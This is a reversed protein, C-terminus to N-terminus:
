FTELFSIIKSYKQLFEHGRQTLFYIRARKTTSESILERKILDKLYSELMPHSLNARQMIQTRKKKGEQIAKLIDHILELNNRKAM